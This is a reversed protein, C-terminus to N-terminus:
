RWTPCWRARIGTPGTMLTAPDAPFQARVWALTVPDSITCTIRRFMLEFEWRRAAAARVQRAHGGHVRCVYGGTIAFARCPQGDRRRATCRVAWRGWPM